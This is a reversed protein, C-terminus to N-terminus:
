AGADAPTAANRLASAATSLDGKAEQLRALVGESAFSRDQRRRLADEIVGKTAAVAESLRQELAAGANRFTEDIGRLLSWRLNEANRLVLERTQEILRARRRQLALARPLFRDLLPALDPILRINLPQTRWYPDEQLAFGDTAASPKWQVDFTEAAIRRIDDVAATIAQRHGDLLDNTQQAFDTAFIAGADTFFAEIAAPIDSTLRADRIEAAGAVVDDLIAILKTLAQDRLREIKSELDQVLRRRDGSLLDGLSAHQAEITSLAQGFADAKQALQDLPMTLTQMRLDLDAVSEAVLDLAKGRVAGHLTAIKAKALYRTLHDQIAAIGSQVFSDHDGREQAAIGQRASVAFITAGAEILSARQLVTSLFSKAASLEDSSLYDTKNLVFFIPSIKPKLRHLYDIEAETIPPDASLIFLSADCEPIVRLAAETNHALTSGIGPTDILVTGDRLIPAPYFLEARAVNLVNKPNSEETVFRALIQMLSLPDARENPEPARGNAFTIRVSPKEAWAIYTPLATQPVVATPLLTAGLLANVFSSKGRKFQGLIAIQLRNQTLRERLAKLRIAVPSQTGSAVDVARSARDLADKLAHPGSTNSTPM